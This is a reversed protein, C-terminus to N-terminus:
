SGMTVNNLLPVGLSDFDVQQISKEVADLRTPEGIPLILAQDMIQQQLQTYVALRAASDSQTIGQNLLTALQADSVKSWNFQSDPAFFDNLLAPDTGVTSYAVLNYDNTAVRAKLATLTPVAVVKAKVGILQWQETLDRAIDPYLDGSQIVITVDAEAGGLDLYKNNDSDLYGIAGLLSQAKGTDAAYAGELQGNYYLMNSTVPAWGISSFRQFITDLIFNRNASYLLAQRFAINDTPFRSTNMLFQLPQGAIKTPVIRVNPNVTLARADNPLLNTVIDVNNSNISDLRQKATPMFLFEVVNVSNNQAPLYFSPGWKYDPNRQLTIHKGPIYDVFMFPGTGVQHFQYRDSSYQKFSSPSAIGLYPQSLADLFPAYPQNLKLSITFDDVVQAGAYYKLLLAGAIGANSNLSAIREFNDVVAQANFPTGDHFKVDKRLSFTYVLNDPSITWQTALGPVIMEQRPDRYVLTDYIQRLVIATENENSIHPDINGPESGL